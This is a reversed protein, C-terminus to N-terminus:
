ASRKVKKETYTKRTQRERNKKTNLVNQTHTHKCPIYDLRNEVTQNFGNSSSKERGRHHFIFCTSSNLKVADFICIGTKGRRM